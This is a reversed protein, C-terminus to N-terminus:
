ESVCKSTGIEFQLREKDPEMTSMNWPSVEVQPNPPSSRLDYNKRSRQTQTPVGIIQESKSLAATLFNNGELDTENAPLLENPKIKKNGKNNEQNIFQLTDDNNYGSVNYESSTEVKKEPVSEVVPVENSTDIDSKNPLGNEDLVQEYDYSSETEDSELESELESEVSEKEKHSDGGTAKNYNCLIQYLIFIFICILIIQCVNDSLIGNM